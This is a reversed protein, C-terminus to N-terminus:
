DIDYIKWGDKTNTLAFFFTDKNKFSVEVVATKDDASQSSMKSIEYVRSADANWLMYTRESESIPISSLVTSKVLDKDKTQVAKVHDSIVSVVKADIKDDIEPDSAVPNSLVPNSASPSSPAPSFELEPPIASPADLSGNNTNKGCAALAFCLIISFLLIFAKNM